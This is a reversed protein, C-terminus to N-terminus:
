DPLGHEKSKFGDWSYYAPYLPSNQSSEETDIITWIVTVTETIPLTNTESRFVAYTVNVGACNENKIGTIMDVANAGLDRWGATTGNSDIPEALIAKCAIGLVSPTYVEATIKKTYEDWIDSAWCLSVSSNTQVTSPLGPAAHVNDSVASDKSEALFLRTSPLIRIEITQQATNGATATTGTLELVLFVAIASIPWRM